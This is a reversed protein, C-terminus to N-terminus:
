GEKFVEGGGITSARGDYGTKLTGAYWKQMARAMVKHYLEERYM